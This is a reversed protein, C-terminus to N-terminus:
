VEAESTQAIELAKNNSDHVLPAPASCEPNTREGGSRATRTPVVALSQNHQIRTTNENHREGGLLVFPHLRPTVRYHVLMGELPSYFYDDGCAAWARAIFWVLLM